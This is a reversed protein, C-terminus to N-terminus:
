CASLLLLSHYSYQYHNYILIRKIKNEKLGQYGTVAPVTGTKLITAALWLAFSVATPYEGCLNKYHIIENTHFVSRSLQEYIKDEKADGNKGTIVLSIDDTSLSHEKLFSVIHQETETINKPKYFTTM